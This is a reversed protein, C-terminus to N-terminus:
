QGTQKESDPSSTHNAHAPALTQEMVEKGSLLHGEKYSNFEEEKRDLKRFAFWFVVGFCFCLVCVVGYNWVLLQLCRDTLLDFVALHVESRVPDSSLGVFAETIANGVATMFLWVATVLSRMNASLARDTTSM